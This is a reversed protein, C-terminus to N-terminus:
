NIVILELRLVEKVGLLLGRTTGVRIENGTGPVVLALFKVSLILVHAARLLRDGPTILLGLWQVVIGGLHLLLDVLPALLRTLPSDRTHKM